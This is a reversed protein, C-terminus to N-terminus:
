KSGWKGKNSKRYRNGDQSRNHPLYPCSSPMRLVERWAESIFDVFKPESIWICIRFNSKEAFTCGTIGNIKLSTLILTKSWMEALSDKQSAPIELVLRGGNVNGPDEWMPMIGERFYFIDTCNELGVAKAADVSTMLEPFSQITALPKISDAWVKAPEPSIQYLVFSSDM